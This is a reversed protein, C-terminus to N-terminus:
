KLDGFIENIEDNINIFTIEKTKYNYTHPEDLEIEDLRKKLREVAKAVDEKYFAKYPLFCDEKIKMEKESLAKEEYLTAVRENNLNDVIGIEKDSGKASSEGKSVEKNPKANLDSGETHNKYDKLCKCMEGEKIDEECILCHWFSPTAGEGHSHNKALEKKTEEISKGDIKFDNSAKFCEECTCCYTKRCKSAKYEGVLKDILNLLDTGAYIDKSKEKLKDIDIMQFNM